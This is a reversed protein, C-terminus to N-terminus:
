WCKWRQRIRQHGMVLRKVMKPKSTSKLTAPTAASSKPRLLALGRGEASVATVKHSGGALTFVTTGDDGTPKPNQNSSEVTVQASVEPKGNRMVSVILNGHNM